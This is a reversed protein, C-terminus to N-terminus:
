RDDGLALAALRDLAALLNLWYLERRVADSQSRCAKWNHAAGLVDNRLERVEARRCFRRIASGLAIPWQSARLYEYGPSCEDCVPGYLAPRGNSCWACPGYLEILTESAM